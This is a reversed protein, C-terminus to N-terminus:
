IFDKEYGCRELLEGTGQVHFLWLLERAGLAAACDTCVFSEERRYFV